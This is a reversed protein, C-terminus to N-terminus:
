PLIQREGLAARSLAPCWPRIQAKVSCALMIDNGSSTPLLLSLRVPMLDGQLTQATLHCGGQLMQWWEQALQEDM